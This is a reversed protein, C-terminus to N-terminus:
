KRFLRQVFPQLLGAGIMAGLLAAFFPFLTLKLQRSFERGEDELKKHQEPSRGPVHRHFGECRLRRRNAESTIVSFSSEDWYWLGKDCYIRTGEGFWGEDGRCAITRLADADAERGDISLFGCDLCVTRHTFRELKKTLKM